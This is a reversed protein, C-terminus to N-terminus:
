FGYKIDIKIFFNPGEDLTVEAITAITRRPVKQLQEIMEKKTTYRTAENALPMEFGILMLKFSFDLIARFKRIKHSISVGPSM